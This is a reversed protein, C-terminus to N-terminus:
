DKDEPDEEEDAGVQLAESLNEMQEGLDELMDVLEEREDETGWKPNKKLDALQGAIVTRLEELKSKFDEPKM